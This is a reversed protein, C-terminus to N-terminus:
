CPTTAARPRAPPHTPVRRCRRGFCCGAATCAPGCLASRSASRSRSRRTRSTKSIGSCSRRAFSLLCHPWPPTFTADLHRAAYDQEPGPHRPGLRDAALDTLPYVRARQRRRVLDLFLNTTIRHLWGEFTGPTYEALSKFVRIFTEQTLDEADARNGSLRYALRYVREAHARVIEDWSPPQWSIAPDGRVPTAPGGDPYGGDAPREAGSARRVGGPETAAAM